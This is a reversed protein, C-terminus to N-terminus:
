RSMARRAGASGDEEEAEEEEDDDDDADLTTGCAEAIAMKRKMTRASSACVSFSCVAISFIDDVM